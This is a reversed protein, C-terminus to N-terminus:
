KDGTGVLDDVHISLIFVARYKELRISKERVIQKNKQYYKALKANSLLSICRICFFELTQWSSEFLHFVSKLFAQCILMKLVVERAWVFHRFGNRM